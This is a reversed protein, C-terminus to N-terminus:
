TKDRKKRSRNSQKWNKEGGLPAKTTAGDISQWEWEIGQLEDYDLLSKKWLEEFIGEENWEQFYRHITSGSGFEKPVAKWQCGTRLVYFIGNAVQRYPLPPRGGKRSKRRKPLLPEMRQWLEEPIRWADEVQERKM